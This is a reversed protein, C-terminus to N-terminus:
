ESGRQMRLRGFNNESGGRAQHLDINDRGLVSRSDGAQLFGVELDEVVALLLFDALEGFIGAGDQWHRGLAQRGTGEGILELL